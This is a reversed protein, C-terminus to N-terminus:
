APQPRDPPLTSRPNLPCDALHVASAAWPSGRLKALLRRDATLFSANRAEALGIYLCDYVPHDLQCAILVARPALFAAGVLETFFRPLLTAIDGLEAREIQRLRVLRWAANCTEAILIDPAILASGDRLLAAAEAAHPEEAFFWKLAVSADVVFTV